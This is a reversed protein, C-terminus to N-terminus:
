REAESWYLFYLAFIFCPSGRAKMRFSPITSKAWTQIFFLFHFIFPSTKSYIFSLSAPRPQIFFHFFYFIFTPWPALFLYIFLHSAVPSCCSSMVGLGHFGAINRASVKVHTSKGHRFWLIRNHEMGFGDIGTSIWASVM